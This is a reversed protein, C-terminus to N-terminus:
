LRVKSETFIAANKHVHHIAPYWWPERLLPKHQDSTGDNDSVHVEVCRPNSVAEELMKVDYRNEKTAVINLHSFDVVYHAGSEFLLQYEAWTSVWFVGNKTPYHGEIGVVCEWADALKKAQDLLRPWSIEARMGAHLTYTTRGLYSNIEGLRRYYERYIRSSSLNTILHREFVRVNAHLRIEMGPYKVRLEDIIKEDVVGKMQPVLQIIEAPHDEANVAYFAADSISQGPFRALSSQVRVM